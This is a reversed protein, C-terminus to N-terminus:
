TGAVLDEVGLEDATTVYGSPGDGIPVQENKIM